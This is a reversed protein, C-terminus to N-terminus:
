RSSDLYLSSGAAPPRYSALATRGVSLGGLERRLADRAATATAILAEQDRMILDALARAEARGASGPPPPVCRGIGAQVALREADLADLADLDADALARQQALQLGRLHRLEDLL